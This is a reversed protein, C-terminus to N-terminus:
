VTYKLEDGIEIPELAIGLIDMNYTHFKMEPDSTDQGRRRRDLPPVQRDQPESEKGQQM